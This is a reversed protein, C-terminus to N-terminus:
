RQMKEADNHHRFAWPRTNRLLAGSGTTTPVLTALKATVEDSHVPDSAFFRFVAKHGVLLIDEYDILVQHDALSETIGELVITELREGSSVPLFCDGVDAIPANM